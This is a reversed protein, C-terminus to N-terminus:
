NLISFQSNLIGAWESVKKEQGYPENVITLTPEIIKGNHSTVFEKLHVMANATYRYRDDGLAILVVKKGQLDVEGSKEKLLKHMHPNLQGEIGGTNWSGSALLLIDGKLLDEPVAQEARQKEITVGKLAAIAQDIVYETHGSTSAYIIHLSLVSVNYLALCAPTM